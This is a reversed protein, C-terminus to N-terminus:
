EPVVLGQRAEQVLIEGAIDRDLALETEGVRVVCSPQQQILKVEAGPLLGFVALANHRSPNRGGMCLVTARDGSHLNTIPQVGDPLDDDHAVTKRFLKGLWSVHKPKEPFEYACSPCRILHCLAGLPCGHACLTDVREFEFGCFPCSLFEAM